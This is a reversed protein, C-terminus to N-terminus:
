QRREDGETLQQNWDQRAINHQLYQNGSLFSAMWVSWQVSILPDCM